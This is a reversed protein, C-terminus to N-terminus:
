LNWGGIRVGMMSRHKPVLALSLVVCNWFLINAEWRSSYSALLFLIIPAITFLKRPLTYQRGGDIQEWFTLKDFTGWDFSSSTGKNLHLLMFTLVNHIFLVITWSYFEPAVGGIVLRSVLLVGVYYVWFTKRQVFEVNYNVTEEVSDDVSKVKQVLPTSVM